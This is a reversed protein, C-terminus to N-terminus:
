GPTTWVCGTIGEDNYGGGHTARAHEGADTMDFHDGSSPNFSRHLPVAGCQPTPSLYGLTGEETGAAGECNPATTYFHKNANLLCRHLPQLGPAPSTSLHFYDAAEERFGLGGGEGRTTTYFHEGSGPHYSRHVGVRCGAPVGCVAACADGPPAAYTGAAYSPVPGTAHITCGALALAFLTSRAAPRM